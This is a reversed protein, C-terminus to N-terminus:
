KRYKRRGYISTASALHLIIIGISLKISQARTAKMSKRNENLLCTNDVRLFFFRQWQCTPDVSRTNGVTAAYKATCFRCGGLARATYMVKAWQCSPGGLSPGGTLSVSQAPRTSGNSAEHGNRRRNVYPFPIAFGERRGFGKRVFCIAERRAARIGAM